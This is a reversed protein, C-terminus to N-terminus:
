ENHGLHLKARSPPPAPLVISVIKEKLEPYYVYLTWSAPDFENYYDSVVAEVAALARPSNLVLLVPVILMGVIIISAIRRLV